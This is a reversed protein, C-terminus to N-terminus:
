PFNSCEEVCLYDESLLVLLIKEVLIVSWGTTTIFASLTLQHLLATFLQTVFLFIRAVSFFLIALISRQEIGAM